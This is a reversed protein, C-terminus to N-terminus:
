RRAFVGAETLWREADEPINRDLRTAAGWLDISPARFSNIGVVTTPKGSRGMRYLPTGSDGQCVRSEVGDLDHRPLYTHYKEVSAIRVVAFKLTREGGGGSRDESHPDVECGAGSVIVKEGAELPERDLTATAVTPTDVDIEVIAADLGAQGSLEAATPGPPAADFPSALLRTVRALIEVSPVGGVLRLTGGEAVDTHTICHSATLFRRPGLKAAGCNGGPLALRVTAPFRDGAVEGGILAGESGAAEDSPGAGGCGATIASIVTAAVLLGFRM